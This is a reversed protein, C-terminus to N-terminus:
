DQLRSSHRFDHPFPVRGPHSKPYNFTEDTDSTNTLPAHINTILFPLRLNNQLASAYFHPDHSELSPDGTMAICSLESKEYDANRGENQADDFGESWTGMMDGGAFGGGGGGGGSGAYRYPHPQRPEPLSAARGRGVTHGGVPHNINNGHVSFGTHEGFLSSQSAMPMFSRYPYLGPGPGPTPSRLDLYNEPTVKQEKRAGSVVSEGAEVGHQQHKRGILPLSQRQSALPSSFEFLAIRIKASAEHHFLCSISPSLRCRPNKSRDPLASGRPLDSKSDLSRQSKILATDRSLRSDNSLAIYTHTAIGIVDYPATNRPATDRSLRSDSSLVIYSHTAIMGIVDYPATNRAKYFTLSTEGPLVYVYKQRPMFERSRRWEKEMRLSEPKVFGDPQRHRLTRNKIIVPNTVSDERLVRYVDDEIRVKVECRKHRLRTYIYSSAGACMKLIKQKQEKGATRESDIEDESGEDRM